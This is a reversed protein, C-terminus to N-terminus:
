ESKPFNQNYYDAKRALEDDGTGVRGILIDHDLKYTEYLEHGHHYGGCMYWYPGTLRNGVTGPSAMVVGCVDIGGDTTANSQHYLPLFLIKITRSLHTNGARWRKYQSEVYSTADSMKITKNKGPGTWLCNLGISVKRSDCKHLTSGRPIRLVGDNRLSWNEAPISYLDMAALNIYSSSTTPVFDSFFGLSPNDTAFTIEREGAAFAVRGEV